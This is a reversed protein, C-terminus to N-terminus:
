AYDEYRIKNHEEWSQLEIAEVRDLIRATAEPIEGLNKRLRAQEKKFLDRKKDLKEKLADYKDVRARALDVSVM